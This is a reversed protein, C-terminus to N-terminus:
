RYFLLFFLPGSPRSTSFMGMLHAWGLKVMGGEVKDWDVLGLREDRGAGRGGM